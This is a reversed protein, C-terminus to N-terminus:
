DPPPLSEVYRVAEAIQEPTHRIARNERFSLKDPALRAIEDVALVCSRRTFDQSVVGRKFAIRNLCDSPELTYDDAVGCM